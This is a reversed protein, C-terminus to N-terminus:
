LKYLETNYVPALACGITRALKLEKCIDESHQPVFTSMNLIIHLYVRESFVKLTVLM